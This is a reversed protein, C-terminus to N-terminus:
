HNKKEVLVSILNEIVVQLAESTSSNNKRKIDSIARSTICEISSKTFNWNKHKASTM